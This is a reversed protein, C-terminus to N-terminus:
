APYLLGTALGLLAGCIVQVCAHVCVLHFARRAEQRQRGPWLCVHVRARCQRAGQYTGITPDAGAWTWGRLWGLMCVERWLLMGSPTSHTPLLPQREGLSTGSTSRDWGFVMHFFM